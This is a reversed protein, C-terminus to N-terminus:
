ALAPGALRARGLRVIAGALLLAGALWLVPPAWAAVASFDPAKNLEAAVLAMRIVTAVAQVSFWLGLTSGEQEPRGLGIAASLGATLVAGWAGGAILQGLITLPLNPALAALIAGLAGVAGGLAMVRLSGVRTALSAAPFSLLSFGIWFIPLLYDLEAPQAFRLYQAASNFSSHAQFGFALVGTTVVFVAVVLRLMRSGAMWAPLGAAAAGEAAQAPGPATSAATATTGGERALRREVWILGATVALLTLSSTAFPVRPDVNRLAVGLYPALANAVSLGVLSLAALWPVRPTAAYKALLVWPPARLASSTLVWVLVLGFFLMEAAGPSTESLRAVQPILLFALCSVATMAVIAPAVRGYLRLVRDAAIGMALDMIVFLIQDALLIWIILDRRVGVKDALGPLFLVYIVWMTAFLFQIVALYLAAARPVAPSPANAAAPVDHSAM